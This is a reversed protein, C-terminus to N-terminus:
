PQGGVLSLHKEEVSVTDGNAYEVVYVRRGPWSFWRRSGEPDSHHMLNERVVTGVDLGALKFPGSYSVAAGIPLQRDADKETTNM